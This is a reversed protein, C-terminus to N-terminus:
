RDERLPLRDKTSEINGLPAERRNNYRLFRGAGELHVAGEHMAEEAIAITPARLDGYVRAGPALELKDRATINGHVEGAVIVNDALINGRWRGGEGLVLAGAIDGDGEIEGYVLYNERGRFSGRFHSGPGIFTAVSGLSDSSRRKPPEGARFLQKIRM